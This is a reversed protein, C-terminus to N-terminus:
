YTSCSQKISNIETHNYRMTATKIVNMTKVSATKLQNITVTKMTANILISTESMTRANHSCVPVSLAWEYREIEKINHQSLHENCKLM